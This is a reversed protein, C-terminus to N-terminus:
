FWWWTQNSGGHCDWMQIASGNATGFSAVELCKGNLGSRITGDAWFEWKQNAGGHCDWVQVKAGNATNWSDIELCKGSGEGVLARTTSNYAWVQNTTPGFTCDWLQTKTGNATGFGIVDVCRGSSRAEIPRPGSYQSPHAERYSQRAGRIDDTQLATFSRPNCMVSTAPQNPKCGPSGEIYTDDLQFAHGWEHVTV